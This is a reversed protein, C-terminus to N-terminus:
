DDLLFSKGPETPENGPALESSVPFAETAQRRAHVAQVSLTAVARGKATAVPLAPQALPGRPLNSFIEVGDPGTTVYIEMEAGHAAPLFALAAAFFLVTQRRKMEIRIAIVM